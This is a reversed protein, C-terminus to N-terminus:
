EGKIVDQIDEYTPDEILTPVEVSKPKRLKTIYVPNPGIRLCYVLREVEKKKGKRKNDEKLIRKVRVFTNGIINVAANLTSVVSPMLRPGVEPALAIIDSDEESSQNFVRDQALFVVELPLDRFNVLWHKMAQGVDGWERQTMTGWDGAKSVDKKKKSLVRKIALDQLGTVTDIVVTKYEEPNKSLWWYIEEFDEWTEIELVDCKKIDSISDTGQDNIDLFLIPKPWTAALTTKGTGSRGYIVSSRPNNIESVQKIPPRREKKEPKKPTKGTKAKSAKKLM